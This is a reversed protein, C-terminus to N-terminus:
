KKKAREAIIAVIDSADVNFRKAVENIAKTKGLKKSLRITEILLVADPDKSERLINAARIDMSEKANRGVPADAFADDVDDSKVGPDIEPSGTSVPTTEPEAPAAEPEDVGVNQHMDNGPGEGTVIQQMNDINRGITDKALKVSDLVSQLTTTADTSLQDAYAQGFNLRIADLLPMIGTAELKALKEAMDQLEDTVAKTALVIEAQDMENEKLISKIRM